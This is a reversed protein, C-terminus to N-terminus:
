ILFRTLIKIISFKPLIKKEADFHVHGTGDGAAFGWERWEPPKM